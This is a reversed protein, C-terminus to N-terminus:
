LLSSAKSCVHSGSDALVGGCLGQCLDYANPSLCNGKEISLRRRHGFRGETNCFSLKYESKRQPVAATIIFLLIKVSFYFPYLFFYILFRHYM